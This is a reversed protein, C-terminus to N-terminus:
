QRTMYALWDGKERASCERGLVENCNRKFWKEVKAADTYRTPSVSAAMPDIAKGARTRGAARADEGHCSTCAPTDAKGGGHRTRHLTEGRAASFGAFAPDAARAEATYRAILDEREGATAGVSLGLSCLLLLARYHINM